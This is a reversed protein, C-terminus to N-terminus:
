SRVVLREGAIDAAMIAALRRQVREEAVPAAKLSRDPSRVGRHRRSAVACRDHAPREAGIKGVCGAPRVSMAM